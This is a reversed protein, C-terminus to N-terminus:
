KVDVDKNIFNNKKIQNLILTKYSQNNVCSIDNIMTTQYNLGEEYTMYPLSNKILEFYTDDFEAKGKVISELNNTFRVLFYIDPRGDREYNWYKSAYDDDFKCRAIPVFGNQMYKLALWEGYCDMHNGGHMIALPLLLDIAGNLDKKTTNKYISVINKDCTVAVGAIGDDILLLTEMKEYEEPFYLNVFESRENSKMAINMAKYFEFGNVKRAISIKNMNDILGKLFM